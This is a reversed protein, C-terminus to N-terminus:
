VKRIFLNYIENLALYFKEIKKANENIDYGADIIEKRMDKREYGNKCASLILEAWYEPSKKLSIFNVLKTIKVEKTINTSAFIKIGAAQAEILSVPLGEYLSPFVFVDMAQLLEPVDTRVGTFIVNNMLRLEKVKKEISSRLEGDGVLLLVSNKDKNYIEKFIDILFVHNKPTQFRGIHGIVFKNEIGLEKRKRERIVNSFTFKKTDIANKIIFTSDSYEGFMWKAASESCAFLYDAVHRLPYRLLVKVCSKISKESGATHSHAITIRNFSKAVKLYIFAPTTHHAHIINWEPHNSLLQEWKKRYLFHNKINYRPLRYIKGGLDKIEREYAYEDKDENVIFDFQVKSRDINRYINMIMTEAGGRDLTAFVQLIRIPMMKGKSRKADNKKM